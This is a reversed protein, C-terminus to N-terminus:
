NLIKKKKRSSFDIIGTLIIGVIGSSVIICFDRVNDIYLLASCIVLLCLFYTSGTQAWDEFSFVSRVHECYREYDKFTFLESVSNDSSNSEFDQFFKSIVLIRIQLHKCLLDVYVCVLPILCVAFRAYSVSQSTKTAFAGIDMSVASLVAVLILKWKLLDNRDKEAEIIENKFAELMNKYNIKKYFEGTDKKV